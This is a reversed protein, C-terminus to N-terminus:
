AVGSLFGRFYRVAECWAEDANLAAQLRQWWDRDRCAM